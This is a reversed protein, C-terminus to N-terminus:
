SVRLATLPDTQAARRAALWGTIVSSAGLLGAGGLLAVPDRPEMGYILGTVFQSAWLSFVAGALLGVAAM